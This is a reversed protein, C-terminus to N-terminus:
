CGTTVTCRPLTGPPSGPPPLRDCSMRTRNNLPTCGRVVEIGWGRFLTQLDGVTNVSANEVVFGPVTEPAIPYAVGDPGIAEIIEAKSISLKGSDIEVSFAVKMRVVSGDPYRLTVVLPMNANISRLAQQVTVTGGVILGNINSALTGNGERLFRSVRGQCGADYLHSAAGGCVTPPISIEKSAAIVRWVAQFPEAEAPLLPLEFVSTVFLGPERDITAEYKYVAKNDADVVIVEASGPDPTVTLAALERQSASCSHCSALKQSAFISPSFCVLLVLAARQTASVRNM